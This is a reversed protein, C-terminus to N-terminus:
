VAEDPLVKRVVLWLEPVWSGEVFEDGDEIYPMCVQGVESGFEEAEDIMAEFIMLKGEGDVPDMIRAVSPEHLKSM